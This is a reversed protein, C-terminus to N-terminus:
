KASVRLTQEIKHSSIFKDEGVHPQVIDVSSQRTFLVDVSDEVLKPHIVTIIVTEALFINFTFDLEHNHCDRCFHPDVM